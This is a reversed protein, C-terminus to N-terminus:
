CSGLFSRQQWMQCLNPAWSFSIAILLSEISDFLYTRYLFPLGSLKFGIYPCAQFSSGLILALRLVQAWCLPLDSLKFGFYTLSEFSDLTRDLKSCSPLDSFKFEFSIVWTCLSVFKCWEIHCLFGIPYLLLLSHWSLLKWQQMLYLLAIAALLCFLFFLLIWSPYLSMRSLIWSPNLTFDLFPYLSMRSLIWSPDFPLDLFSLLDDQLLDLFPLISLAHSLPCLSIQGLMCNIMALVALGTFLNNSVFMSLATFVALLCIPAFLLLDSFPLEFDLNSAGLRACFWQRTVQGSLWSVACPNSSLLFSQLHLHDTHTCAHRSIVQM